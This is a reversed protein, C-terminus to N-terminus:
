PSWTPVLLSQVGGLVVGTMPTEACPCGTGRTRRASLVHRADGVERVAGSEACWGGALASM